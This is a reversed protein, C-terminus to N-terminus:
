PDVANSCDNPDFDPMPPVRAPTCTQDLCRSPLPRQSCQIQCRINGNMDTGTKVVRCVNAFTPACFSSTICWQGVPKNCFVNQAPNHEGCTNTSPQCCLSECQYDSECAYSVSALTFFLFMFFLKMSFRMIKKSHM